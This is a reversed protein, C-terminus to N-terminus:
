RAHRSEDAAQGDAESDCEANIQEIAAGFRPNRL